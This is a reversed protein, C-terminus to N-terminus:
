NDYKQEKVWKMYWNWRCIEQIKKRYFDDPVPYEMVDIAGLALVELLDSTSANKLSVLMPVDSKCKVDMIIKFDKDKVKDESLNLILIDINCLLGKPFMKESCVYVKADHGLVKKTQTDFEKDENILLVKM